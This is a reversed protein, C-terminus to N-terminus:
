VVLHWHDARGSFEHSASLTHSAGIMTSIWRARSFNARIATEIEFRKEGINAPTLLTMSGPEDPLRMGGMGRRFGFAAM